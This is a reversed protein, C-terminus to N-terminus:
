RLWCTLAIRDSFAPLVAHEVAGSLFVVLRGALPAIDVFGAKGAEAEPGEVDRSHLRHPQEEHRCLGESAVIFYVENMLTKLGGKDLLARGIGADNKPDWIPKNLLTLVPLM